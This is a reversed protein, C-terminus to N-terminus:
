KGRIRRPKELSEERRMVKMTDAMACSYMATPLKRTKLIIAKENMIILTGSICNWDSNRLLAERLRFLMVKQIPYVIM